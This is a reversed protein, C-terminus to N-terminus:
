SDAAAGYTLAYVELGKWHQDRTRIGEAVQRKARKWSDPNEALGTM